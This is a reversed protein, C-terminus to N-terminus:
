YIFEFFEKVSRLYKEENAPYALGHGAGEIAVLRKHESICAAYNEESMSYPVFDDADGHIFIVPLKCAKMAEIPSTKDINFRGFLVAGLRVFPYLLGAPLKMDRIVKKIIDRASTYGCDALVGVVNKPMDMASCIMVTAAGMSVGTLIIRANRDINEIIFDVWQRCDRSENIGFTIVKGDSEGSGRHDFLLVNHGLTRGRIVGGSLDRESNGKYGHLMLEIPAGKYFEYYRGRLTLGDFTKISVERCPLSRVENGWDTLQKKRASYIEGEPIDVGEPKPKRKPARFIMRYCVYATILACVALAGLVTLIIYEPEM